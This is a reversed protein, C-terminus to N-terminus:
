RRDAGGTHDDAAQIQTTHKPRRRTGGCTHGNIPQDARHPTPMLRNLLSGTFAAEIDPHPREAHQRALLVFAPDVTKVAGDEDVVELWSHALDLMGMIWGRRTRAEFGAARCKAELDLCAAICPAYGQSLVLEPRAMLEEPLRAWRYDGHSYETVIDLLQKSRITRREGSTVMVGSARLGGPGSGVIDTETLRAGAPGIELSEVWGGHVDPTPLAISWTPDAGCAGDARDCSLEVSYTWRRPTSLTAPDDHMWRLAYGMTQEPVSERSGSYLALNVLDLRDFLESGEEGGHPLGAELLLDFTEPGCRLMELAATRPLVEERFEEPIRCLRELSDLWGKTGNGDSDNSDPM